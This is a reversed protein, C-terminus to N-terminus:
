PAIAQGFGPTAFEEVTPAPIVACAEATGNRHFNAPFQCAGGAADMLTFMVNGMEDAAVTTRCSPDCEENYRGNRQADFYFQIDHFAGGDGIGPIRITVDGAASPQLCELETVLYGVTTQAREVTVVFPLTRLREVTAAIFAERDRMPIEMVAPSNRALAPLLLTPNLSTSFDGAGALETLPQFGLNHEFVFAGNDCINASWSHDTPPADVTGGSRSLDSWFDMRYPGDNPQDEPLANPLRVLANIPSRDILVCRLGDTPPDTRTDLMLRRPGLAAAGTPMLIARAQILDSRRRVVTAVTKQSGHAEMNVLAIVADRRQTRLEPQQLCGMSDAQINSLDSVAVSCSTALSM